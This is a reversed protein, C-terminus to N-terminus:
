ALNAVVAAIIILGIALLDAAAGVLRRLEQQVSEPLMEFLARIINGNLAIAM